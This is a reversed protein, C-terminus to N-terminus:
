QQQEEPSLDPRLIAKTSIFDSPEIQIPLTDNETLVLHLFAWYQRGDSRVARVLLYYRHTKEGEAFPNDKEVHRWSFRGNPAIPLHKTITSEPLSYLQKYRVQDLGAEMAQAKTLDLQSQQLETKLPEEEALTSDIRGQLEEIRRNLDSVKPTTALQLQAAQERLQKQRDDVSKTFDRWQKMQDELWQHEKASDVGSPMDYLAL